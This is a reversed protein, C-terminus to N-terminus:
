DCGTILKTIRLGYFGSRKTCASRQAVWTGLWLARLSIKMNANLETAIIERGKGGECTKGDMRKRHKERMGKAALV